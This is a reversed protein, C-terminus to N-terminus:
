VLQRRIEKSFKQMVQLEQFDPNSPSLVPRLLTMSRQLASDVDGLSKKLKERDAELLRTSIKSDMFQNVHACHISALKFYERGLEPSDGFVKAITAVSVTLYEAADSFLKASSLIQAAKDNLKAARLLIERPPVSIDFLSKSAQGLLSAIKRLIPASEPTMQLNSNRNMLDRAEVELRDAERVLNADGANRSKPQPSEGTCGDCRCTFFYKEQLIKIRDDKSPNRWIDVGYSHCVPELPKCHKSLKVMLLNSSESFSAIANPCCSHNFMSGLCYLACGIRTQQQNLLGTPSISSIMDSVAYSNTQFQMLHKLLIDSDLSIEVLDLLCSVDQRMADIRDLPFSEKHDMLNMVQQYRRSELETRSSGLGRIATRFAARLATPASALIEMHPCEINHYHMEAESFCDASCFLAQRCSACIRPSRFQAPRFCHHCRSTDFERFLVAAYPAEGSLITDGPTLESRAVIQRGGSEDPSIDVKTSLKGTMSEDMSTQKLTKNVYEIREYLKQLKEKPYLGSDLSRSLLDLTWPTIQEMQIHCAAINALCIAFLENEQPVSM